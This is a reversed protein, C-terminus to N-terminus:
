LPKFVSSVQETLSGCSAGTIPSTATCIMQKLATGFSGLVSGTQAKQSVLTAVIALGVVGLLVYVISNVIKENM